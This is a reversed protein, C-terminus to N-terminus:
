FCKIMKLSVSTVYCIVEKNTGANNGALVAVNAGVSSTSGTTAITTTSGASSANNSVFFSFMDGYEPTGPLEDFLSGPITLTRVEASPGSTIIATDFIDAATLPVSTDGKDALLIPKNAWIIRNARFKLGSKVGSTTGTQLTISSSGVLSGMTITSTGITAVGINVATNAGATNAGSGINITQTATAGTNANGIAITNSATSTGLYIFGTSSSTGITIVGAVAGPTLNLAGSGSQLILSSAGTLAGITVSSTGNGNGIGITADNATNGAIFGKGINITQTSGVAAPNANGINITNSSTSTGIFIVSTQSAGGLTISGTTLNGGVSYTSAAAGDMAVSGNLTTTGTVTLPGAVTGTGIAATLTSPTTNFANTTSNGGLYVLGAATVTDTAANGLITNGNITSTGTVTLNDSLTVAGTVGLTGGVTTNGTLTSAGTVALTGTTVINTGVTTAASVFSFVSFTVVGAVLALLGIKRTIKNKM